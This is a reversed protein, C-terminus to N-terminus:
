AAECRLTLPDPKCSRNLTARPRVILDPWHRPDEPAFEIRLRVLEPLEAHGAWNAQWRRGGNIKDEGFYAFNLRRAGGLLRMATAGATSRPDSDFRSDLASTELMTLDGAASRFIHYRYPNDAGRAPPPAAYFTFSEADGTADVTPTSTDLRRVPLSRGIRYRILSQTAALEDLTANRRETRAAFLAAMNIGGGLMAAALGLVALAVLLEVLTFGQEAPAITM